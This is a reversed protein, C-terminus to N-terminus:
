GPGYNNTHSELVEASVNAEFGSNKQDGTILVVNEGTQFVHFGVENLAAIPDGFFDVENGFDVKEEKSEGPGVAVGPYVSVEIGLSGKGFPPETLVGDPTLRSSMGNRLEAVPSGITNRVSVGWNESKAHDFPQAAM